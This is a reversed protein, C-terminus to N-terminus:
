SQNPDILLSEGMRHERSLRSPTSQATTDSPTRRSRCFTAPQMYAVSCTLSILHSVGAPATRCVRSLLPRGQHVRTTLEYKHHCYHVWRLPAQRTYSTRYVSSLEQRSVPVSVCLGSLAPPGGLHELPIRPHEDVVDAREMCEM